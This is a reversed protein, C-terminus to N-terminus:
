PMVDNYKSLDDLVSHIQQIDSQEGKLIISGVGRINLELQGFPHSGMTRADRKDSIFLNVTGINEVTRGAEKVWGAEKGIQKWKNKSMKIKM